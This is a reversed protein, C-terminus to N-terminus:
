VSGRLEITSGSSRTGGHISHAHGYIVGVNLPFLEILCYSGNGDGM